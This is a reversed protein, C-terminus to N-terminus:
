QEAEDELDADIAGDIVGGDIGGEIGGDFDVEVGLTVNLSYQACSPNTVSFSTPASGVYTYGVYELDAGTTEAYNEPAGSAIPTTLAVYSKPSINQPNVVAGPPLPPLPPLLFTYTRNGPFPLWPGIFPGSRWTLNCGPDCGFSWGGDPPVTVTTADCEHTTCGAASTGTLVVAALIGITGNQMAGVKRRDDTVLFPFRTTETSM